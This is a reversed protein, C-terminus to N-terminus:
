EVKLVDAVQQGVNLGTELGREITEAAGLGKRLIEGLAPSLGAIPEQFTKAIESGRSIANSLTKGIKLAGKTGKSVASLGKRFLNKLSDFLGGGTDRGSLSDLFEQYVAKSLMQATPAKLVDRTAVKSITRPHVFDGGLSDMIPRKMPHPEDVLHAAALGQLTNFEGGEMHGLIHYLQPYSKIGSRLPKLAGERTDKVRNVAGGTQIAGGSSLSGGPAVIAGADEELAAEPVPKKRKKRERPKVSGGPGIRSKYRVM